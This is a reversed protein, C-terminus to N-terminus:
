QYPCEVLGELARHHRKRFGSITGIVPKQMGSVTMYNVREEYGKAIRHSSYIEQVRAQENAERRGDSKNEVVHIQCNSQCVPIGM